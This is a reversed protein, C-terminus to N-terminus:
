NKKKQKKAFSTTQEGDYKQQGTQLNDKITNTQKNRKINRIKNSLVFIM